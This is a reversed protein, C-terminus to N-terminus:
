CELLEKIIKCCMYEEINKFYESMEILREKSPIINETHYLYMITNLSYIIDLM